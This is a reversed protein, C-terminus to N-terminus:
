KPPEDAMIMRVNCSCKQGGLGEGMHSRLYQRDSDRVWNALQTPPIDICSANEVNAVDMDGLCQTDWINLLQEV